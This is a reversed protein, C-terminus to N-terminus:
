GQHAEDATAPGTAQQYKKRWAKAVMAKFRDQTLQQQTYDMGYYSVHAELIKFDHQTFQHDANESFLKQGLAVYSNHIAIFDNLMKLATSDPKEQAAAKSIM